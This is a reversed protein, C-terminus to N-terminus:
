SDKGTGVVNIKVGDSLLTQGYQVVSQGESVGGLIEVQDVTELGLKVPVLSATEAAVWVAADAGSGIVCARPLLLADPRDHTRIRFSVLLGPVLRGDENPFLVKGDLLHTRPNAMLNLEDLHGTRLTGDPATWHALQGKELSLAQSSGASFSVKV